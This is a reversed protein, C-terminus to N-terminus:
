TAFFTSRRREFNLIDDSFLGELRDFMSVTEKMELLFTSVNNELDDGTGIQACARVAKLM